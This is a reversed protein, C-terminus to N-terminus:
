ETTRALDSGHERKAKMEAHIEARDVPISRPGDFALNVQDAARYRWHTAISIDVGGVILHDGPKLDFYEM